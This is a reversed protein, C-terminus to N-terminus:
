TTHHLQLFSKQLRLVLDGYYWVNVLQLLQAIVMFNLAELLFYYYECSLHYLEVIYQLCTIPSVM